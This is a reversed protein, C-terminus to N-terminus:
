YLVVTQPITASDHFCSFPAFRGNRWYVKDIERLIDEFKPDPINANVPQYERRGWIRLDGSVVKEEVLRVADSHEAGKEILPHGRAPGFDAIRPLSPRRLKQTSDNVIYNIAKAIPMDYRATEDLTSPKGPPRKAIHRLVQWVFFGAAALIASFFCLRGLAAV